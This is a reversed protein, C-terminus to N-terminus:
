QTACQPPMQGPHMRQRHHRQDHSQNEKNYQELTVVNPTPSVDSYPQSSFLGWLKQKVDRSLQMDAVSITIVMDGYKDHHNLKPMGKHKLVFSSGHKITQNLAFVIDSGDLHKFTRTFGCLSEELKLKLEVLLNNNDRKYLKHSQENIHCIVSTRM